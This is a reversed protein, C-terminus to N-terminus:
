LALPSVFNRHTRYCSNSDHNGKKHYCYNRQGLHISYSYKRNWATCAVLILSWSMCTDKLIFGGFFYFHPARWSPSPSSTGRKTPLRFHSLARKLGEHLLVICRFGKNWVIHGNYRPSKKTMLFCLLILGFLREGM